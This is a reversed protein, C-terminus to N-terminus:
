NSVLASVNETFLARRDPSAKGEAVARDYLRVCEARVEPSVRQALYFAAREGDEGVLEVTPWGHKALVKELVKANNAEVRGLKDAYAAPHKQAEVRAKQDTSMQSLLQRRVSPEKFSNADAHGYPLCVVVALIAVIWTNRM